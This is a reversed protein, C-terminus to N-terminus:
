IFSPECQIIFNVSNALFCEHHAQEHLKSALVKDSDATIEVKPRLIIQTFHGKRTPHEDVMYGVANDIYGIVVIKNIACLHLYWLKHCAAISAVLLEEPNWKEPNGLFAPDSSGQLVPKGKSTAIFDRDYDKYASTGVGRNGAWRIEVKYGHESM